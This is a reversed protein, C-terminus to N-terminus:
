ADVLATRQYPTESSASVVRGGLVGLWQRVSATLIVVVSALFFAAV